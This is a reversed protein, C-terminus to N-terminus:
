RRLPAQSSMESHWAVRSRRWVWCVSLAALVMVVMYGRGIAAVSDGGGLWLIMGGTALGTAVSVGLLPERKHARLYAAMPLTMVQALTGLLFYATAPPSLMRDAYPHEMRNVAYVAGWVMLAGAATICVVSWLLSWFIRNLEAYAKQAVLMGFVPTKPAVWATAVATLASLLTWTMGMQGAVVAGHFHFLVPTFFAFAFYGSVWSVSIRWQMPLIDTRWNLVSAKPPEGFLQTALAHYRRWVTFVFVIAVSLGVLGSVWLGAGGAIALWAVLSSIVAQFLRYAYVATVQNCGELLAWVPLCALNVGTVLCLLFWPGRWLNVDGWGKAAFFIAGGVMLIVAVLVAAVLYWRWAFRALSHLRSLAEPDGEIRGERNLSLNSWEHSAYTSIVTGLGLEAFVQLALVSLFTYYYGQVEPTFYTAVLLATLLGAGMGWLKGLVAFSVARDLGLRRGIRLRLDHLRFM